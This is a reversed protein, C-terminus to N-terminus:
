AAIGVARGEACFGVEAGFGVEAAVVGAGLVSRAAGFGAAALALLFGQPVNM